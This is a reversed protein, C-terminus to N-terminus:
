WHTMTRFNMEFVFRKNTFGIVASPILIQFKWIKKLYFEGLFRNKEKKSNDYLFINCM